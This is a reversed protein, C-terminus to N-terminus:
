MPEHLSQIVSGLRGMAVPSPVYPQSPRVALSVQTQLSLGLCHKGGM